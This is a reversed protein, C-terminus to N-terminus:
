EDIEDLLMLIVATAAAAQVCTQQYDESLPHNEVPEILTKKKSTLGQQPTISQLAAIHM